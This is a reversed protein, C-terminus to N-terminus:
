WCIPPAQLCCPLVRSFKQAARWPGFFGTFLANAPVAFVKPCCTHFVPCVHFPQNIGYNPSFDLNLTIKRPPFVWLFTCLPCNTSTPEFSKLHAPPIRRKARPSSRSRLACGRPPHSLECDDRRLEATQTARQESPKWRAGGRVAPVRSQGGRPPFVGCQPRKETLECDVRQPTKVQMAQQESPKRRAAERVAPARSQGRRIGVMKMYLLAGMCLMPAKM